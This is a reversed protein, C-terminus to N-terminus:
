ENNINEDIWLLRNRYFDIMSDTYDYYNNGEYNLTYGRGTHGYNMYNYEADYGMQERQYYFDDIASYMKDRVGKNIYADKVAENFEPHAFLLKYLLLYKMRFGDYSDFYIGRRDFPSGLTLEM